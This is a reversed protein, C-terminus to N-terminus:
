RGRRGCKWHGLSLSPFSRARREEVNVRGGVLSGSGRRYLSDFKFSCQLEEILHFLLKFVVGTNVFLEQPNHLVELEMRLVGRREGRKKEYKYESKDGERLISM